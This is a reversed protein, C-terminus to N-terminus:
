NLLFEKSYTHKWTGTFIKRVVNKDADLLELITGNMRNSKDSNYRNHLTIQSLYVESGLDIRVKQRDNKGHFGNGANDSSSSSSNFIKGDTISKVDQKNDYRTGELHEVDKGEAVDNGEHDFAELEILTWEKNWHDSGKNGVDIYRAKNRKAYINGNVEFDGSTIVKDSSLSISSDSSIDGSSVDLTGEVILDGTGGLEKGVIVGDASSLYVDKYSGIHIREDSGIKDTPTITTGTLTGTIELNTLKMNETNYISSVNQIAEGTQDNTSGFHEGNNDFIMFAIIIFIILLIYENM